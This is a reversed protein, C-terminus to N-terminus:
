LSFIHHHYYCTSLTLLQTPLSLVNYNDDTYENKNILYICVLLNYICNILNINLTKIHYLFLYSVYQQNNVQEYYFIFM